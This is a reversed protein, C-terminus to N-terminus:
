QYVETVKDTLNFYSVSESGSNAYLAGNLLQFKVIGLRVNNINPDQCFIGTVVFKGSKGMECSCCPMASNEDTYGISHLYLVFTEATFPNKNSTKLGLSIKGIFDDNIYIVHEYIKGSSGGHEEIFTQIEEESWMHKM